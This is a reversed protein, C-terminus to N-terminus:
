GAHDREPFTGLDQLAFGGPYSRMRAYNEALAGTRRAPFLRLIRGRAALLAHTARYFATPPRQYALAALLPPDMMSRAAAQVLPMLPRPYFSTLLNLTADAVRRSAPNTRFHQGEYDDMLDGFEQYDAPIDKIGMMRGLHQYFAVTARVEGPDLPRKGYDAIWRIPVVVFTSLVYRLDNNSIDYARHMQNIRRIATRGADSDFGATTPQELLLTTDDYRKQTHRQFEQTRDLLEGITPVAFTRFLALSLSQLIEWPFEYQAINRYIEAYDRQPDLAANRRRWYDRPVGGFHNGGVRFGSM